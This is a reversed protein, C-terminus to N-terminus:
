LVTFIWQWETCRSTVSLWSWLAQLFTQIGCRAQGIASPLLSLCWTQLTNLRGWTLVDTIENLCKFAQPLCSWGLKNRSPLLASYRSVSATHYPSPSQQRQTTAYNYSRLLATQVNLLFTIFHRFIVFVPALSLIVFHKNVLHSNKARNPSYQRLPYSQRKLSV